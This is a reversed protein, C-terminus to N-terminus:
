ECKEGIVYQRTFTLNYRVRTRKVNVHGHEFGTSLYRILNIVATRLENLYYCLSVVM